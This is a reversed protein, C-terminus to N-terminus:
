FNLRVGPGYHPRFLKLSVIPFRVWLMRVQFALSLNVAGGCEGSNWMPLGESQVVLREGTGCLCDRVRCSWASELEV